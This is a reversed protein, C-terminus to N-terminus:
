ADRTRRKFNTMARAKRAMASPATCLDLYECGAYSNCAKENRPWIAAGAATHADRQAVLGQVWARSDDIQEQTFDILVLSTPSSTRKKWAESADLAKEGIYIANIIAGAVSIGREQQLYAAYMRMQNSIRFQMAWHSSVWGTTCKNDVVYTKGDAEVALDLIVRVKVIEGAVNPWEFVHEAEAVDALVKSRELITPTAEREEMYLRLREEMFPLTLFAKKDGLPARVDGWAAVLAARAPEYSWGEAYLVRLAAHMASGAHAPMSIGPAELGEVYRQRYRESCEALTSLSSYSEIRTM